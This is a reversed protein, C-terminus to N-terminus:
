RLVRPKADRGRSLNARIIKKSMM